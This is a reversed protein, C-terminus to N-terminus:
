KESLLRCNAESYTIVLYSYRIIVIHDLIMQIYLDESLSDDDTYYFLGKGDAGVYNSSNNKNTHMTLFAPLLPAQEEDLRQMEIKSIGKISLDFSYIAGEKNDSNHSFEFYDPYSIINPLKTSRKLVGNIETGVENVFKYEGPESPFHNHTYDFTITHKVDEAKTFKSPKFNFYAFSSACTCSILALGLFLQKKM